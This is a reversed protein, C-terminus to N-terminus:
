KLFSINYRIIQAFGTKLDTHISYLYKGDKDIELPFRIPKDLVLKAVPVGDWNTVFIYKLPDDIGEKIINYLSYTSFPFYIYKDYSAIYGAGVMCGKASSTVYPKGDKYTAEGLKPSFWQVFFDKTFENKIKNYDYISLTSSGICAIKSMQSNKSFSVGAGFIFGLQLNDIQKKGFNVQPYEDFENLFNGKIDYIQFRGKQFQGSCILKNEFFYCQDIQEGKNPSQFNIIRNPKSNCTKINNVGFLQASKKFPDLALLTDNGYSNMRLGLFENPGKGHSFMKGIFRKNTMDYVSVFGDSTNGIDQILIYDNIIKINFPNLLHISDNIYIEVNLKIENNFIRFMDDVTKVEREWDNHKKECSVLSILILIVFILKPKNKNMGIHTQM